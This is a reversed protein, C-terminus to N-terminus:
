FLGQAKLREFGTPDLLYEFKRRTNDLEILQARREAESFLPNEEISRKDRALMVKVAERYSEWFDYDEFKLFPMRALWADVQQFLSSEGAVKGLYAVDESRRRGTVPQPLHVGLGLRLEIERFQVSQFG